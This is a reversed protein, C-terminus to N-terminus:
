CYCNRYVTGAFEQASHRRIGTCHVQSNRYMTGAFEPYMKFSSSLDRSGRPGEPRPCTFGRDKVM